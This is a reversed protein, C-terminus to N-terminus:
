PRRGGAKRCVVVQSACGSALPEGDFGGDHREIAFGTIEALLRIEEPHIMRHALHFVAVPRRPPRHPHILGHGRGPRDYYIRIHCIQTAPDYTHNTSYVLREGTAPHVFPTISHRVDPDWSLWEPDPLEVDFAFRGGPALLRHAEAFGDRLDRHTYLHMLVNFPSVVLDFSADPAPVARLDAHATRLRDAVGKAAARAELAALMPPMRDVALVHASTALLAETVRGSGAGLEAIRGAGTEETLRRYFAVDATRDRFEFDYLVPDRYLDETGAVLDEPIPPAAADPKTVTPRARTM